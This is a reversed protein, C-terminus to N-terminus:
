ETSSRLEVLGCKAQVHFPDLELAKEFEKKAMDTDGTKLLIKGLKNHLEATEYGFKIAKRFEGIALLHDGISDYAM